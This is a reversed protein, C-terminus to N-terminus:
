PGRGAAPPPHTVLGLGDGPWPPEDYVPGGLWVLPESPLGTRVEQIGSKVSGPSCLVSGSM